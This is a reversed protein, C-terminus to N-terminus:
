VTVCVIPPHTLKGPDATADGIAIGEAGTTLTTSLQPDESREVLAAPENSHDVLSVAEDIV